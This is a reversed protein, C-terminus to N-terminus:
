PSSPIEVRVELPNKFRLWAITRREGPRLVRISERIPEPSELRAERPGTPLLRYGYLGDAAILPESDWSLDVPSPLPVEAEGTNLLDIEVLAPSPRRQLIRIERRPARGAM